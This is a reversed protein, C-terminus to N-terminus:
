KKSEQTSKKTGLEGAPLRREGLPKQSAAARDEEEQQETWQQLRARVEWVFRINEYFKVTRNWAYHARDDIAAWVKAPELDAPRLQRASIGACKAMMSFSLVTLAMGMVLRPQLIPSFVGALWAKLRGGLRGHRGSRTEDLIRTLLEPPPEVDAARAMFSVAGRADRALAACASCAALHSELASREQEALTGDLYDCLLIELEGCNM